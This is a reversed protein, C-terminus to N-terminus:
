VNAEARRAARWALLGTCGLALLGLSGGSEPVSTSSTQGATIREGPDAFAYDILTFSNGPAGDMNIRAWGYQVGAGGNFRFGVFGTGPERWQANYGILEPGEPNLALRGYRIIFSLVSINQGFSLKSAYQLADIPNAVFGAVAGSALTPTVRLFFSASGNVGEASRRHLAFFSHGPEDLQFYAVSFMGPPADFTNNIPGSYIIDASSSVACGVTSAVGATAYAVWLSPPITASQRRYPTIRKM